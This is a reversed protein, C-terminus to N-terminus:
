RRQTDAYSKQQDEVTKLRERIIQIQESTIEILEVDNLKREGVEDYCISTRYKKGYLAEYPAM